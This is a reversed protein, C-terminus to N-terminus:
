FIMKVMLHPNYRIYLPIWHCINHTHSFRQFHILINLEQIWHTNNELQRHHPTAQNKSWGSTHLPCRVDGKSSTERERERTKKIIISWYCLINVDNGICTRIPNLSLIQLSHYRGWYYGSLINLFLAVFFFLHTFHYFSKTFVFDIAESFAYICFLRKIFVALM